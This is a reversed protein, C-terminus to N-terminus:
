SHFLKKCEERMFEGIIFVEKDAKRFVVKCSIPSPIWSWDDNGNKLRYNKMDERTSGYIIGSIRSFYAVGCCMICPEHTSYLISNELHRSGTIKVANKIAIIEAHATPDNDIKVWNNGRAIIKNDKVIVAGIAYDGLDKSILAQEIALNMFEKKPELM